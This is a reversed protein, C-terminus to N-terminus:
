KHEFSGDEYVLFTSGQARRRDAQASLQADRRSERYLAERRVKALRRDSLSSVTDAFEADGDEGEEERDNGRDGESVSIPVPATAHAIPPTDPDMDNNNHSDPGSYLEEEEEEDDDLLDDEDAQAM